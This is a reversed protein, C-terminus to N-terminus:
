GLSFHDLSSAWKTFNGVLYFPTFTHQTFTPLFLKPSRVECKLAIAAMRKGFLTTVEFTIKKGEGVPGGGDRINGENGPPTYAEERVRRIIHTVICATMNWLRYRLLRLYTPPRHTAAPSLIVRTIKKRGEM